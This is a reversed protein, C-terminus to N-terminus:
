STVPRVLRVPTSESAVSVGVIKAAADLLPEVVLYFYHKQELKTVSVEARVSVGTELVKRKLAVIPPVDDPPLLEADLKGVVDEPKYGLQPSYMWTYRLDRDQHFLAMDVSKLALRLSRENAQLEAEARMRQTVDLLAFLLGEVRGHENKLPHLTWDWYTVGWEPHDPYQFPKAHITFPQGTAVVRHFISENEEHPYLAFHNKGAFYGPPYGCADAYAQNVRVFNFDRDLYVICFHTTAFIRDLLEYNRRLANEVEFRRTVDRLTVAFLREGARETQAISADIQFEQGNARLGVIRGFGGVGRRTVKTRAFGRIHADHAERYREPILMSIPRGLLRAERYGFMREAAPNVLVIEHREDIAIIPDMVAAIIGSLRQERDENETM